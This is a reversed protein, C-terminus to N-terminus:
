HVTASFGNNSHIQWQTSHPTERGGDSIRLRQNRQDITIIMRDIVAALDIFGLWDSVLVDPDHVGIEGITLDGNLRVIRSPYKRGDSDAIITDAVVPGLPLQKAIEVPVILDANIHAAGSDLLAPFARGALQIPVSPSFRLPPFTSHLITAYAIIDSGNPAPLTGDSISLCGNPFDLTLLVKRFLRIGLTSNGPAVVGEADDFARGAVTLKKALVLEREAGTHKPQKDSTPVRRHGIVPLKLTRAQEPAISFASAALGTDLGFHMPESGNISVNLGGFPIHCSGVIRQGAACSAAFAVLGAAVRVRLRYRPRIM